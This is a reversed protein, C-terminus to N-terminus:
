ANKDEHERILRLLLRLKIDGQWKSLVLGFWWGANLFFFFPFLFDSPDPRFESAQLKYFIFIGGGASVLVILVCIWRTIPWRRERKEWLSLWRSEQETLKMIAV